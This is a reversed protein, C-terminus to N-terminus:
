IIDSPITEIQNYKDIETRYEAQRAYLLETLVRSLLLYVSIRRKRRKEPMITVQNSHEIVLMNVEEDSRKVSITM